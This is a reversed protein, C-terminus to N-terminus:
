VTQALRDAEPEGGGEDAGGATHKGLAAPSGDGGKTKKGGFARDLLSFDGTVRMLDMADAIAHKRTLSRKEESRYKLMLQAKQDQIYDYRRDGDEIRKLTQLRKFETVRATREVNDLKDQLKLDAMFKMMATQAARQEAIKDYCNDKSARRDIVQQRHENRHRYAEVLRGLRLKNRKDREEAQTRIKQREAVATEKALQLAKTQREYFERKKQEHLEHHKVLAEEIRKTAAAKAEAVEIRKEEKKRAMQDRVRQEREIMLLRNSEALDAQSQILAETKLRYQEMKDAREKDKARAEAAIRKEELKLAAKRKEEFAAEKKAVDKKRQVEEADRQKQQLEFAKRKKEEEAKQEAVQKEHLKRKKVEVDEAHKIKKQLTVLAQEREVIKSLEKEQRARLAEMRREEMELLNSAGEKPKASLLGTQAAGADPSNPASPSAHLKREAFKIIANRDQKVAAIKDTPLHSYLSLSLHPSSTLSLSLSIYENPILM